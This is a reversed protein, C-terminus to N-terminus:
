WDTKVSNRPIEVQDNPGMIASTAKFFIVPEQPLEMGAEAAHDAYNLGICIFKGVNGVCAGIRPSGDIKPLSTIDTDRIKAITADSLNDGSIDSVVGSLDRLNNDDDLIAPKEAGLAGVRLLKM